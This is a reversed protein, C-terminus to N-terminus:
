PRTKFLAGTLIGAVLLIALSSAAPGTIFFGALGCLNGAAPCARSIGLQVGLPYAVLACALLILAYAPGRLRHDGDTRRRCYRAYFVAACGTALLPSLFALLWVLSVLPGLTEM